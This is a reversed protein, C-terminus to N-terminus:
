CRRRLSHTEPPSGWNMFGTTVENLRSRAVASAPRAVTVPHADSSVLLGTRQPLGQPAHPDQAAASEPDEDARKRHQSARVSRTGIDYYELEHAPNAYEVYVSNVPGTFGPLHASVIRIAEYTTPSGGDEFDPDDPNKRSVHQHEVLAVTRWAPRAKGPHLLPVLSHGDIPNHPAARALAVFTPYLDVNQAVQPVLKGTPVGPGAVILPVRIDTDFATQKGHTLRHQGLHYGNDSSFM